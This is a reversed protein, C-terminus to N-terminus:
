KLLSAVTAQRRLKKGLSVLSTRNHDESNVKDDSSSGASQETISARLPDEVAYVGRKKGIFFLKFEM